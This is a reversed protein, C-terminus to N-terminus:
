KIVRDLVSKFEDEGNSVCMEIELFFLREKLSQDMETCDYLRVSDKETSIVFEPKHKTVSDQIKRLDNGSYSHHDPFRIFDKVKLGLSYLCKEYREPNAIGSFAVCAKGKLLNWAVTENGFISHLGLPVTNVEIRIGKQLPFNATHEGFTENVKFDVEIGNGSKKLGSVALVDSRRLGSLPERRMGAPLMQIQEPPVDGSMMVIDLDRGLSRHQFGDDLLIVDAGYKEIAVRASVVRKAEVIVTVDPFKKAIQFPEDGIMEATGRSTEGAGIAILGETKRRYGRSLVAVKKGKSLCYRILYEVMPTKGTGGATMNGVSIVPVSVRVTKFIGTDYCWNRTWLILGYLWAFPLLAKSV